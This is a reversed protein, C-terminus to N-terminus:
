RVFGYHTDEIRLFSFDVATDIYEEDEESDPELYALGFSCEEYCYTVYMPTGDQNDIDGEFIMRGNADEAGIYQGVSHPEVRTMRKVYVDGDKDAKVNTVIGFFEEDHLLEGYVWGDKYNFGRFKRINM